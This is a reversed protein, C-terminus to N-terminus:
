CGRWLPPARVAFVPGRGRAAPAAAKTEIRRRHSLSPLPRAARLSAPIQVTATVTIEGWWCPPVRSLRSPLIAGAAVGLGPSFPLLSEEAHRPGQGARRPRARRGNSSVGRWDGGPALEWAEGAFRRLHCDRIAIGPPAQLEPPPPPTGRSRCDKRAEPAPGRRDSTKGALRRRGTIPLKLRARVFPGKFGATTLEPPTIVRPQQTTM